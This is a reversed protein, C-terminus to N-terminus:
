LGFFFSTDVIYINNSIIKKKEFLPYELSFENASYKEILEKIEKLFALMENMIFGNFSILNPFSREANLYKAKSRTSSCFLSKLFHQIRYCINSFLLM